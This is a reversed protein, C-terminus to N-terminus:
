RMLASRPLGTRIEWNRMMGRLVNCSNCSPVLNELANNKTNSDLHDVVLDGIRSENRARKTWTVRVGCWHCKHEGPGIHEYLTLRHKAVKKSSALPHGPRFASARPGSGAENGACRRSCYKPPPLQPRHNQPWALYTMSCRACVTEVKGKDPNKRRWERAYAARRTKCEPCTCYGKAVHAM